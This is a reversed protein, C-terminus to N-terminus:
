GSVKLVTSEMKKSKIDITEEPLEQVSPPNGKFAGSTRFKIYSERSLYYL